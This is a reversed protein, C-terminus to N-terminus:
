DFGLRRGHCHGNRMVQRTPDQRWRELLNHKRFDSRYYRRLIFIVAFSGKSKCSWREVHLRVNLTPKIQVNLIIKILLSYSNNISSLRTNGVNRYLIM